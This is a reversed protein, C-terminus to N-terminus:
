ARPCHWGGGGSTEAKCCCCEELCVGGVGTSPQPGTGGANDPESAGVLNQLAPVFFRTPTDDHVTITLREDFDYIVPAGGDLPTFVYRPWAYFEATFAGTGFGTRTFQMWGM